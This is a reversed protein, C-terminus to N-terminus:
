REGDERDGRLADWCYVCLRGDATQGDVPEGLFRANPPAHAEASVDFCMSERGCLPCEERLGDIDMPGRETPPESTM